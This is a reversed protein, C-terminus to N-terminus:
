SLEQVGHNQNARGKGDRGCDRSCQQHFICTPAQFAVFSAGTKAYRLNGVTYRLAEAQPADSKWASIVTERDASQFDAILM